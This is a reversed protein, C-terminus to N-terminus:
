NILIPCHDSGQVNEQHEIKAVLPLLQESIRFYDLRRGVNRARAEARYSWRTYKDKANPNFHRFVDIYHDAVLKDM